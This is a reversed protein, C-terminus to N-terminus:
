ARDGDVGIVDLRARARLGAVGEGIGGEAVVACTLEEGVHAEVLVVLVPDDHV